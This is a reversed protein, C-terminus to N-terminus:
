RVWSQTFLWYFQSSFVFNGVRKAVFDVHKPAFLVAFYGADTVSRDIAAWEKNAAAQDTVGTAM